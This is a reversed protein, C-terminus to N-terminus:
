NERLVYPILMNLILLQHKIWVLSQMSMNIQNNQANAQQYNIIKGKFQLSLHNNPDLQISKDFIEIAEKYKDVKYLKHGREYLEKSLKRNNELIQYYNISSLQLQEYLYNFSHNLKKTQESILTTILQKDDTQKIISNLVDNIQQQNLNLLRDNSLSYKNKIGTKFQSFSQNVSEVFQNLDDILDDCEKNKNEIFKLLYNFKQVDNLHAQHIGKQICKFCNLRSETCFQNFCFMDIYDKHDDKECRLNLSQSQIM